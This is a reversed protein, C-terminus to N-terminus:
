GNGKLMKIVFKKQKANFCKYKIKLENHRTIKKFSDGKRM